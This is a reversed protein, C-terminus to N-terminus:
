RKSGGKGTYFSPGFGGFLRAGQYRSCRNPSPSAGAGSGKQAAM